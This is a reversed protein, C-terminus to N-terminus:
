VQEITYILEFDCTNINDLNQIEVDIAQKNPVSCQIHRGVGFSDGETFNAAVFGNADNLNSQLLDAVTNQARLVYSPFTINMNLRNSIDPISSSGFWDHEYGLAVIRLEGDQPVTVITSYDLLEEKLQADTLSSYYEDTGFGRPDFTITEGSDVELSGPWLPVRVDNVYADMVWEGSYLPDHDTNVAIGNFTVKFQKMNNTVNTVADTAADSEGLQQAKVNVFHPLPNSISSNSFLPLFLLFLFVWSFILIFYRTVILNKSSRRYMIDSIQM